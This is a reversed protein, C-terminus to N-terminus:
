HYIENWYESEATYCKFFVSHGVVGIRQENKNSLLQSVLHSRFIDGRARINTISELRKPFTDNIIDLIAATYDSKFYVQM